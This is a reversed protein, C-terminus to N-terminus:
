MRTVGVGAAAESEAIDTHCNYPVAYVKCEGKSGSADNNIYNFVEPRQWLDIFAM